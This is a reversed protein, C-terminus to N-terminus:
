ASKPVDEVIIPRKGTELLPNERGHESGPLNSNWSYAVILWVGLRRWVRLYKGQDAVTTGNAQRVGVTYRGIEVAMDGSHDVRITELRLDQYGAEGFDRFAREITRTEQLAPRNPAMLIGDPAFLAAVHDYNGTNFSTCFDQSLDRIQSEADVFSNPTPIGSSFSRYM